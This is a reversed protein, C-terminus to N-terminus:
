WVRELLQLRELMVTQSTEQIEGALVYEDMTVYVKHFNYVLDLETVNGFYRDLLEVFLHIGELYSLDNDQGRLLLTLVV